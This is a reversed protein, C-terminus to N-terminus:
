LAQYINVFIVKLLNKTVFSGKSRGPLSNVTPAAFPTADALNNMANKKYPPWDPSFVPTLAQLDCM